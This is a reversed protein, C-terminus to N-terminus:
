RTADARRPLLSEARGMEIAGIEERRVRVIKKRGANWFVFEGPSESLLYLSECGGPLACRADMSVSPFVPRLILVGYTMPLFLFYILFVLSFPAILLWQLRFGATSRWAAALLAATIFASILVEFFRLELMRIDGDLLAAALPGSPSLGTEPQVFLLGDISLPEFLDHIQGEVGYLLVAVMLFYAVKPLLQRGSLSGFRSRVSVTLRSFPEWSGIFGLISIVALSLVALISFPLLIKESVLALIFFFFNGGRRLQFEANFDSAMVDLGLMHLHSMTALYGCVTLIACIGALSGSLWGIGKALAKAKDAIAKVGDTVPEIV